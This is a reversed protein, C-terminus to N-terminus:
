PNSLQNVRPSLDALLSERDRYEDIRALPTIEFTLRYTNAGDDDLLRAWPGYGWTGEGWAADNIASTIMVSDDDVATIVGWFSQDSIDDSYIVPVVHSEVRWEDLPHERVYPRGGLGVGVDAEGAYIQYRKLLDYRLAATDLGETESIYVDINTAEGRNQSPRVDVATAEIGAITVSSTQTPQTLESM